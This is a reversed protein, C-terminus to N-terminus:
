TGKIFDSTEVVLIRKDRWQSCMLAYWEESRGIVLLEDYKDSNDEVPENNLYIQGYSMKKEGCIIVEFLKKMVNKVEKVPILWAQGCPCAKANPYHEQHIKARIRRESVGEIKAVEKVTYYKM